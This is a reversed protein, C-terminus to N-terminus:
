STPVTIISFSSDRITNVSQHKRFTPVENLLTPSINGQLFTDRKLLTPLTIGQTPHAINLLTPPHHKQPHLERYHHSCTFM